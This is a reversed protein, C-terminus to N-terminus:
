IFISRSDEDSRLGVFGELVDVLDDSFPRDAFFVQGSDCSFKGLM